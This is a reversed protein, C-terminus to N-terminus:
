VLYTCDPATTIHKVDDRGTATVTIAIRVAVRFRVKVRVRVKNIIVRM